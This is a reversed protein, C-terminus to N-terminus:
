WGHPARDAVPSLADLSRCLRAGKPEVYASLNRLANQLRDDEVAEEFTLREDLLKNVLQMDNIITIPTHAVPVRRLREVLASPALGKTGAKKVFEVTQQGTEKDKGLKIEANQVDAFGQSVLQARIAENDAETAVPFRQGAVIVIKTTPATM